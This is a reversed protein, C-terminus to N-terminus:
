NNVRRTLRVMLLEALLDTELGSNKSQLEAEDIKILGAIFHQMGYGQSFALHRELIAGKMHPFHKTVEDSGGGGALISCVQLETQFQSRLQRLLVIFPTEESLIGKCIRLAEAGDRRFIAEGLQWGNDSPLPSVIAQIDQPTIRQRLGVYCYLKQLENHLLERHAGVSKLLLKCCDADMSKGEATASAAIWEQLSREKEWPKEELFQLVIGIKECKKYFNTGQHLSSASLILFIAPDPKEFYRELAVTSEKDLKDANDIAIARQKVFLAPANLEQAIDKKSLRDGDLTLLEISGQPASKKLAATLKEVATKRQFSDKGMILYLLSFRNPFAGEIHKEFVRLNTLKM